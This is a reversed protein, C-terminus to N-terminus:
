LDGLFQAALRENDAVGEAVGPPRADQAFRAWARRRASELNITAIEGDTAVPASPDLVMIATVERGRFTAELRRPGDQGADVRHHARRHRAPQQRPVACALRGRLRQGRAESRANRQLPVRARRRGAHLLLLAEYR